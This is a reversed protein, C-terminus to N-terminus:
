RVYEVEKRKIYYGILLPILGIGYILLTWFGINILLNATQSHNHLKRFYECLPIYLYTDVLFIVVTTEDSKGFTNQTDTIIKKRYNDLVNIQAKNIRVTNEEITKAISEIGERKINFIDLEKLIFRQLTMLDEQCGSYNRSDLKAMAATHKNIVYRTVIVRKSQKLSNFVKKNESYKKISKDILSFAQDWEEKQALELIPLMVEDSTKTTQSISKDEGIQSRLATTGALKDAIEILGGSREYDSYDNHFKIGVSRISEAAKDRLTIAKSGDYIDNEILINFTKQINALAEKVIKLNNESPEDKAWEISDLATCSEKIEFACPEYVKKETVAGMKNFLKTYRQTYEKDDWKQSLDSYIDSIVKDVYIRLDSFVSEDTSLDDINKYYLEFFRWSSESNILSKWLELSEELYLKYEKKFQLLQILLIAFNRKDNWKGVSEARKRFSTYVEEISQTNIIKILEADEEDAFWFYVDQIKKLPSSLRQTADKITSETRKAKLFSFDSELSSEGIGLKATILRSKRKIDSQGASVPLGLLYYSNTSFSFEM